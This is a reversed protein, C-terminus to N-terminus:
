RGGSWRLVVPGHNTNGVAVCFRTTPCSVGTPEPGQATVAAPLSQRRWTKGDFRLIAVRSRRLAGTVEVAGVFTCATSTSCSLASLASSGHSEQLTVPEAIWNSGNFSAIQDATDATQDIAVCRGEAACSVASAGTSWGLSAPLPEANWTSGNWHEALPLDSTGPLAGDEGGANLNLWFILESGVATCAISSACSVGTLSDTIGEVGAPLPPPPPSIVTLSAGDFRVATPTDLAGFAEGTAVCVTSGACSVSTLTGEEGAAAVVVTWRLGNFYEVLPSWCFPVPDHADCTSELAGVALCSRSSTCSVALLKGHPERPLKQITWRAGNFREALPSIPAGVSRSENGVAMCATPSSCSVAALDSTPATHERALRPTPQSTWETASAVATPAVIVAAAVVAVAKMGHSVARGLGERRKRFRGLMHTAESM